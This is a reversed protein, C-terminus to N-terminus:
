QHSDALAEEAGFPAHALERKREDSRSRMVIFNEVFIETM